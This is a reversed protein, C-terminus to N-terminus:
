PSRARVARIQEISLAESSDPPPLGIKRCLAALRPDDRLRLIFPDALMFLYEDPRARGLWALTRDVDGRAAYAQAVDYPNAGVWAKYAFLKDLAADAAARDPSIQAALALNMERWPSPQARAIAQARQMDGRAIALLMSQRPLSSRPQSLGRAIGLYKESEDLRGTALLLEAYRLYNVIYLPEISILRERLGIAEALKGIGALTYGCGNLVTGDDPALQVARRCGALAGRHDFEYFRLYARAAHASGLGPALQLAKDAAVRATRLHERAVAPAEEEFTAVTSLSGSLHAWAVAYGPDLQVARAMHGAAKSFKEDHWQKLGHLYANYADISGNPPRDDPAESSSPPLLKAQLARAIATAIEDQLAFLSQYPRDYQETWVTRGDATSVLAVGIRVTDGARQVSGSVLFAVGLTAGIAKSDAKNDRFQFSSTPGIVQLGDLRSLTHILNESLGDSFFQQSADGSANVLPLVAISREGVTVAAPRVGPVERPWLTWGAFALLAALLPLLLLARPRARAGDSARRTPMAEAVPESASPAPEVADTDVPPPESLAPETSTAAAIAPAPPAGAPVDFRYGVGHVTHLYRPANAEEGLAHRLLTMVRNLVGPTVHRHGWVADLIEDRALVRGPAQALLALVGFAKPELPQDIGGRLLRHGALDIVVDDFAFRIPDPQAM